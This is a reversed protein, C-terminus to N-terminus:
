PEFFDEMHVELFRTTLLDDTQTEDNFNNYPSMDIFCRIYTSTKLHMVEWTSADIKDHIDKGYHMLLWMDKGVVMNRTKSKWVSDNLSTVKFMEGLSEEMNRHKHPPFRSESLLKIPISTDFEM